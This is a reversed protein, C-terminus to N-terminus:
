HSPSQYLIQLWAANSMYNIEVVTCIELYAVASLEGTCYGSDIKSHPGAHAVADFEVALDAHM